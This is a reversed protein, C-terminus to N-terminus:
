EHGVASPELSGVAQSGGPRRRKPSPGCPSSGDVWTQPEGPSEACFPAAAAMRARSETGEPLSAGACYAGGTGGVVARSGGPPGTCSSAAGGERVLVQAGGAAVGTCPPDTIGHTSQFAAPEQTGAAQKGGLRRRRLPPESPSGGGGGALPGGPPEACFPAARAERARDDAGGPFAAACSAEGTGVTSPEVAAPEYTGVARRGDVRGCKTPPDTPAGGGDGGQPGGPSEACFPAAAAKRVRSFVGGTAAVTGGFHQRGSEREAPTRWGM